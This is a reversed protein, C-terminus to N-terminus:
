CLVQLSLISVICSPGSIIHNTLDQRQNIMKIDNEMM